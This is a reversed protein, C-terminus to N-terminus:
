GIVAYEQPAVPDSKFQGTARRKSRRTSRTVVSWGDDDSSSPTPPLGKALRIDRNFRSVRAIERATKAAASVKELAKRQRRRRNRSRKSAKAQESPEKRVTSSRMPRTAEAKRELVQVKTKFASKLDQLYELYMTYADLYGKYDKGFQSRDPPALKAAHPVVPLVRSSVTPESVEYSRLAIGAPVPRLDRFDELQHEEFFKMAKRALRGDLV